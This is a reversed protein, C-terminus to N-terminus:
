MEPNEVEGSDEGSGPARLHEGVETRVNDLDFAGADAVVGAM